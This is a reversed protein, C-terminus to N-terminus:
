LLEQYVLLAMRRHPATYELRRRTLPRRRWNSNQLSKDLPKGFLHEALSALSHSGLTLAMRSLRLTDILGFAQVGAGRLVAEDFRANHAVMRVEPSEPLPRLPGGGTALVDAVVLVGAPPAGHVLSVRM